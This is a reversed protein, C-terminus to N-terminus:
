CYSSIFNIRLIFVTSKVIIKMFHILRNLLIDINHFHCPQKIQNGIMNNIIQIIITKTNFRSQIRISSFIATTILHFIQNFAINLM